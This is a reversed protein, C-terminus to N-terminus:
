FRPIRLLSFGRRLQAISRPAKLRFFSQSIKVPMVPLKSDATATAPAYLDLYLCDESSNQYDRISYWCEIVQLCIPKFATANLTAPKWPAPPQPPRWRNDKIPPAAFPIGRFKHYGDELFGRVPGDAITVVPAKAAAGAFLLVLFAIARVTM